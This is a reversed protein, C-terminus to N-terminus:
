LFCWEWWQLSLSVASHLSGRGLVLVHPSIRASFHDTIQSAKQRPQSKTFKNIVTTARGLKHRGWEPDTDSLIWIPWNDGPVRPLPVPPCQPTTVLHSWSKCCLLCVQQTQEFLKSQNRHSPSDVPHQVLIILKVPHTQLATIWGRFIFLAVTFAQKVLFATYPTTHYSRHTSVRRVM